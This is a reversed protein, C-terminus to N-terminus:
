AETLQCGSAQSPFCEMIFRDVLFELGKHLNAWNFGQATRSIEGTAERCWAMRMATTAPPDALTIRQIFFMEISFIHVLPDEHPQFVFLMVGLCPFEPAQKGDFKHIVALGSHVLRKEVELRLHEQDLGNEAIEPEVPAVWVNIGPVNYFRAQDVIL